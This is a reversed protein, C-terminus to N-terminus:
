FYKGMITYIEAPCLPTVKYEGAAFSLGMVWFTCNAGKVLM